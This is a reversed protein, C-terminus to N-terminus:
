VFRRKIKNKIRKCSQKYAVTYNIRDNIKSIFCVHKVAGENFAIAVSSSYNEVPIPIAFDEPLKANVCVKM